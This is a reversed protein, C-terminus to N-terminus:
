APRRTREAGVGHQCRAFQKIEDRLNRFEEELLIVASFDETQHTLPIIKDWAARLHQLVEAYGQEYLNQSM